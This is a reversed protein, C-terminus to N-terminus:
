IMIPLLTYFKWESKIRKASFDLPHPRMGEGIDPLMAAVRPKVSYVPIVYTFTSACIHTYARTCSATVRLTLRFAVQCTKTANRALHSITKAGEAQARASSSGKAQGGENRGEKWCRWGVEPTPLVRYGIPPPYWAEGVWACRRGRGGIPPRVVQLVLDGRCSLSQSLSLSLFLSLPGSLSPIASTCALFPCSHLFSLSFSVDRVDEATSPRARESRV